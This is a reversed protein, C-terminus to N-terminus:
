QVNRGTAGFESVAKDVLAAVDDEKTVNCNGFVAADGLEKALAEGQEQQIDGIVVRCGEAVFLRASAEGIGSAAGTIVAVKGALRNSM